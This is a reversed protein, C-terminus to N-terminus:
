TLKASTSNREIPDVKFYHLKDTFHGFLKYSTIVIMAQM